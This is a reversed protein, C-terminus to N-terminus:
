LIEVYFLACVIAYSLTLLVIFAPIIKEESILLTKYITKWSHKGFTEIRAITRLQDAVSDDQFAQLCGLKNINQVEVQVPSQPTDKGLPVVREQGHHNITASGVAEAVVGRLYEMLTVLVVEIFPILQGFILWVDVMKIYATSPLKDMVAIFITTMVLMTTLNVTVTAEFYYTRFFTTAYTILILLASPLYTTLLENTIRRKLVIEMKIGKKKNDEDRYVLKWENIIYMTLEKKENMMIDNPNLMVTKLDLARVNMEIACKQIDFPYRHLLYECQFRKTYMQNMTVKNDGGQFIEIEDLVDLGSRTFNGQKTVTMTTDVVGEQLQVAEKMDTNDYVVYPLWLQGIDSDSMANLSNDPKLNHFLARNENWELRIGFQFEITHSVEQLSVIKMLVISINVPVPIITRDTTSVTTIPPVKKNYSEELMLLRCDEEDSRDGCDPIQDCREEMRICQGDSCTFEGETCGTLKLQMTYPEGKGCAYSDKELTWVHKGLGFSPLSAESSGIATEKSMTLIWKSQTENYEIQTELNSVYVLKRMDERRNRPLFLSDLASQPCLGRLRLYPRVTRSCTCKVFTADCFWDVWSTASIQVACNERAGGNPGSGTFPGPHRMVEGTYHDRWVGEEAEDSIALWLEQSHGRGYLEQEIFTQLVSWDEADVVSPARGKLKRCHQMCAAMSSFKAMYVNVRPEPACPEDGAVRELTARGVLQWDAAEWALYDGPTLCEAVGPRTLAEMRAQSLASAHVALESVRHSYSGWGAATRAAGLLLRGTLNAPRGSLSEVIREEVLEGDVVWVLRGSATDLALCTRSWQHPFVLPMSASSPVASDAFFLYFTSRQDEASSSYLMASVLQSDDEALLTFFPFNGKLNAETSIASCVTFAAPLDARPDLSLAAYTPLDRHSAKGSATDTHALSVVSTDTQQDSLAHTRPTRPSWAWPLSPDPEQDLSRLPAAPPPLTVALWLLM